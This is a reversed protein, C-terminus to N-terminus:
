GLILKFGVHSPSFGLRAYFRHADLRAANSTLKVQRAGLARGDAIAHRIMAEGVGQGRCDSRTHVAEVMLSSAGQGTLTTVLTTQFTGLVEGDRTAVYLTDNPSTRIRDFADRYRGAYQPDTSDGHGGLEDSAFMAVIAPIDDATATRIHIDTM